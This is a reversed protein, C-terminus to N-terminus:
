DWDSFPTGAKVFSCHVCIHVCKEPLVQRFPDRTTAVSWDLSVVSVETV